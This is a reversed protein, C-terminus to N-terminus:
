PPSGMLLVHASMARQLTSKLVSPKTRNERSSWTESSYSIGKAVPEEKLSVVGFRKDQCERCITM